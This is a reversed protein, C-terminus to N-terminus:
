SVYYNYCSNRIIQPKNTHMYLSKILSGADSCYTKKHLIGLKHLVIETLDACSIENPDKMIIKFGNCLAVKARIKPIKLNLNNIDRSFQDLDVLVPSGKYAYHYVVGGYEEIYEELPLLMPIDQISEGLNDMYMKENLNYVYKQGSNDVLIVNVHFYPHKLLYYSTSRVILHKIFNSIDMDKLVFKKYFPDATYVLIDGTKFKIDKVSVVNNFKQCNIFHNSYFGVIYILLLVLVLCLSLIYM